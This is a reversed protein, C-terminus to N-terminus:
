RTHVNKSISGKSFGGIDTYGALRAGRTSLDFIVGSSHAACLRRLSQSFHARQLARFGPFLLAANRRRRASFGHYAASNAAPSRACCFPRSCLRVASQARDVYVPVQTSVPKGNMFEAVPGAPFLPPRGYEALM